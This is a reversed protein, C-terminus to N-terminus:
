EADKTTADQTGADGGATIGALSLLCNDFVRIAEASTPADQVGGIARNLVDVDAYAQACEPCTGGAERCAGCGDEPHLGYVTADLLRALRERLGAGTLTATM